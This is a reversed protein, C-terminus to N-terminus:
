AAAERSILRAIAEAGQPTVKLTHMVEGKFRPAQHVETPRFYGRKHAYASYRQRIEVCGKTESFRRDTEVYIWGKDILLDRLWEEGVNNNAAVTRLKLLDADAVYLEVYNVKPADEAIKNAMQRNEVALKENRNRLIQFAEFLKEDESLERSPSSQEADLLYNRVDRAPKSDRLLMGLRLVARRPFLSMSPATSPMGLEAPTLNLISTVESRGIVRFGDDDLEDRNRKVVTLITERGVEYFEAVMETTANMDDPLCRLVGVKDLVDTRDALRDRQARAASDTLDVPNIDNLESM